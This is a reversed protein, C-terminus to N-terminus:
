NIITSISDIFRDNSKGDLKYFTQYIAKECSINYNETLYDRNIIHDIANIFDSKNKVRFVADGVEIIDYSVMSHINDFLIAPTGLAVSEIGITTNCFCTIDAATIYDLYNSLVPIIKLSDSNKNNAFIKMVDEDINRIPHSKFLIQVKRDVHNLYDEINYVMDISESKNVGSLVLLIIKDEPLSFQERIEKQTKQTSIIDGLHNYRTAGILEIKTKLFNNQKMVEFPYAGSCLYASPLPMSTGKNEQQKSIDASNFYFNLWNKGIATHQFAISPCNKSASAWLAKEFCQIESPNVLGKVNYKTSFNKFSYYIFIDRYLEKDYLSKNISEIILGSVNFGIYDEHINKKYVYHYKFLSLYYDPKIFFIFARLPIHKELFIIKQEKFRKINKIIINITAKLSTTYVLHYSPHVSKTDDLLTNYISNKFTNNTKNSWLAPFFSFFSIFGEKKDPRFGIGFLKLTATKAFQVIVFGFQSLFWKTLFSNKYHNFISYQKSKDSVFQQDKLSEKISQNLDYDNLDLVVKSYGEKLVLRILSLFYIQDIFKIRFSGMESFGTFWWINFNKFNFLDLLSKQNHIKKSPFDKKIKLCYDRTLRQAERYYDSIDVFSYNTFSQNLEDRNNNLFVQKTFGLTLIECQDDQHQKSIADIQKGEPNDVIILIKNNV